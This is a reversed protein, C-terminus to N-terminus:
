ELDIRRQLYEERDIEGRAYRLRLEEQARDVGPDSRGPAAARRDDAMSSVSSVVYVGVAVMVLITVTFFFFPMM